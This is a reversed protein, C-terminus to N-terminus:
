LQIHLILIITIYYHIIIIISTVWVWFKHEANLGDLHVCVCSHSTFVCVCVTFVCGSCFQDWFLKKKKQQMKEDDKLM